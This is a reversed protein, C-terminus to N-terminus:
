QITQIINKKSKLSGDRRELMMFKFCIRKKVFSKKQKKMQAIQIQNKQSQKSKYILPDNKNLYFYDPKLEKNLTFNLKEYVNGKSLRNDSYSIIENIKLQEKAWKIANSFLKSAGGNIRINSKFCLRDLIIEESNQRHHKGLSLVGMLENNYYIGWGIIGLRNSKQIHYLDCFKRLENMEILNVECKRAHIKTLENNYSNFHSLIQAKNTEWEHPFIVFHTESLKKIYQKDEFKINNILILNENIKTYDQNMNVCIKYSWLGM